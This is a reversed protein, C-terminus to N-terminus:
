DSLYTALVVTLLWYIMLNCAKFFLGSVCVTLIKSKYKKCGKDCGQSTEIKIVEDEKYLPVNQHHRQYTCYGNQNNM